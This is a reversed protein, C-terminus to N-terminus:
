EAEGDMARLEALIEECIEQVSKRDTHVIIDAAAEYKDRRKEM